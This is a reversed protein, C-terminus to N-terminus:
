LTRVIDDSKETLRITESSEHKGRQNLRKLQECLSIEEETYKNHQSWSENKIFSNLRSNVFRLTLEAQAKKGVLFPMMTECFRKVSTLKRTTLQYSDKYNPNAKHNRFLIMRVGIEDLIKVAESIIVDNTNTLVLAPHYRAEGGDRHTLFVTITGEGDWIGGLWALKENNM